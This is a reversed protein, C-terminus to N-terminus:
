ICTNTYTQTYSRIHSCMTHLKHSTNISFRISFHSHVDTYFYTCKHALLSTLNLTQSHMQTLTYVCARALIHLHTGLYACVHAQTHINPPTQTCSLAYTLSFSLFLSIPLSPSPSLSLSCYRKYM